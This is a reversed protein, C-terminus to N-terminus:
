PAQWDRSIEAIQGRKIDFEISERRQKGDNRIEVVHHGPPLGFAKIPTLRLPRGDVSVNAWPTVFVSLTARRAERGTADHFTVQLPAPLAELKVGFPHMGANVVVEQERTVYGSLKFSLKLTEGVDGEVETPTVQAAPSGNVIVHAGPPDSQLRLRGTPKPPPPPPHLPWIKEMGFALVAAVSVALLPGVIWRLWVREQRMPPLSPPRGRMMEPVVRKRLPPRVPSTKRGVAM